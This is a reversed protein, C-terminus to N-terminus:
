NLSDALYGRHGGDTRVSKLPWWPSRKFNRASNFLAKVLQKTGDCGQGGGAIVPAVLVRSLTAVM